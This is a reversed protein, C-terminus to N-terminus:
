CTRSCCPASGQLPVFGGLGGVEFIKNLQDIESAGQLWVRRLLLEGFVCGAAWVDVPPGYQAAGLLIEPARYYRAFVQVVAPAHRPSESAAAAGWRSRRATRRVQSTMRGSPDASCPRSSGFDALKMTGTASLLVNNPKIDRHILGAAHMAKLAQVAAPLLAAQLLAPGRRQRVLFLGQMYAKVDAGRLAVSKDNIVAELDSEMYEFVLVLNGKHPIVEILSIIHECQVQQLAEVEREACCRAEDTGRALRFKKLAVIRGSQSHVAKRVCGFTGEGVVPGKNYNEM